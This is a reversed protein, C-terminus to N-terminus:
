YKWAEEQMVGNCVVRAEGELCVNSFDNRDKDFYIRLSEGSKPYVTVPSKVKGLYSSVLASAVAGTGCALTEGEVGREYTRIRLCSGKGIKIFNVNTGAPSFKKHYRIERGIEDVKLTDLNDVFHVVHPVGSNVFNVEREKGSIKLKIGSRLGKPQTLRIKVREGKIDARIIGAGTEFNLNKSAIKNIFAFRAACRGGNGCMEAESGDSNYFRWKFDAKSSNEIFIIGDAGISFRRACIKGIFQRLNKIRLLKKRNDIIIFDNGSGVMKTFKIEKVPLSRM